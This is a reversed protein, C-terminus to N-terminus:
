KAKTPGTLIRTCNSCQRKRKPRLFNVQRCKCIIQKSGKPKAM